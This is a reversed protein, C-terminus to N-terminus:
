YSLSYDIEYGEPTVMQYIIPENKNTPQILEDPITLVQLGNRTPEVVVIVQNNLIVIKQVNSKM